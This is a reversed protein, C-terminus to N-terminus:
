IVGAGLLGPGTDTVGTSHSYNVLCLEAAQEEPWVDSRLGCLHAAALSGDRGLTQPHSAVACTNDSRACIALTRCHPRRPEWHYAWM